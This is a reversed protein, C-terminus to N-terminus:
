DALKDFIREVQKKLDELEGRNDIAYDAWKRKEDLPIQKDMRATVDEKQTKDRAM